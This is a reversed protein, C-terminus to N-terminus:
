GKQPKSCSVYFVGIQEAYAIIDIDAELNKQSVMIGKLIRDDAEECIVKIFQKNEEDSRIGVPTILMSFFGHRVSNNVDHRIGEEDLNKFDPTYSPM